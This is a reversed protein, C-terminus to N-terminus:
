PQHFSDPAQKTERRQAPLPQPTATAPNPSRDSLRRSLGSRNRSHSAAAQVRARPTTYVAGFSGAGVLAGVLAALAYIKGEGINVFIPGPCMGAISWGVGFLLGGVVHGRNFPRPELRIPQGRLSRGRTKILWLGFATFVVATGIIGYLQFDEFLFM